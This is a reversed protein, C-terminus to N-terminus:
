RARAFFRGGESQVSIPLGYANSLNLDTIVTNIDGKAVESGEKLLLAHTTGAPIEEIHHTVIVTAPALPDKAFVEIRKLLDERGGLDLSSAPEDLLLLEPDAMLARAIQVRKKEGESLSGFNRDGLERVGLATLLAMARSEDWLDYKEQWRGLMAYAATLVVDIVLEDAPLQEVLASSTLGIRTRLEFVDVKGLQEGLIKISGSTPHILSSCVQLLTTKGAGNPGLVVWRQGELVQWNLPGLITKGGRRVSLNEIELIASM